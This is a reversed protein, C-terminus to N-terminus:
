GPLDLLLSLEDPVTGKHKEAITKATRHLNIARRNYGLGSWLEIVKGSHQKRVLNPQPFARLVDQIEGRSSFSSNASAYIRLCSNGM